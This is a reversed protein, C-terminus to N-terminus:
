KDPDPTRAGEPHADVPSTAAAVEKRLRLCLELLDSQKRLRRDIAEPSMDPAENM